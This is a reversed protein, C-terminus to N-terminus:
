NVSSRERHPRHSRGRYSPQCTSIVGTLLKLRADAALSAASGAFLSFGTAQIASLRVEVEGDGGALHFEPGVHIDVADVFQRDGPRGRGPLGEASRLPLAARRGCLEDAPIAPANATTGESTSAGGRAFLCKSHDFTDNPGVTLGSSTLNFRNPRLALLGSPHAM